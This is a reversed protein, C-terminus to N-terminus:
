EAPAGETQPEVPPAYKATDGFHRVLEVYLAVDRTVGGFDVTDDYEDSASHYRESLFSELAGRDGFSSSVLPAPIGAATLAWGDHRRAFQQDEERVDVKRGLKAAVEEIGADLPTLGYGIITVPADRSGIALTDLSFGAVFYDLPVPPNNVFAQAGLLGMEEATNGMIYLDRETRKGAAMIRAVELMAAVGSANDVAGNCIRDADGESGCQDGLHDWHALLIVAGSGPRTGALRGLVNASTIQKVDRAVGYSIATATDIRGGNKRLRPALKAFTTGMGTELQALADPGLYFLSPGSDVESALRWRGSGVSGAVRGLRAEDRVPILVAAPNAEMLPGFLAAGPQLDEFVVAKGSLDGFEGDFDSAFAILELRKGEGDASASLVYLDDAAVVTGGDGAFTLRPASVVTKDLAVPQTWEGIYGPEFGYAKLADVQYAVSLDEGKTGPLRGGFEDSALTEVHSRLNREVTASGVGATTACAALAAAVGCLTAFRGIQRVKGRVTMGQM